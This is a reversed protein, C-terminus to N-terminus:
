GMVIKRGGEKLERVWEGVAIIEPRGSSSNRMRSVYAALM